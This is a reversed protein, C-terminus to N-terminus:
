ARKLAMRVVVTGACLDHLGRRQNDFLCWLLSTGLTASAIGYRVLLARWEPRGGESTVVRLRWPRMGVTQGGFRWSLIAYAGIGSWLLIFEAFALLSGPQVPEGSRLLLVLASLSMLLALAILGDYLLALLRWGLHAITAVSKEQAPIGSMTVLM